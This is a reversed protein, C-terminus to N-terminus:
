GSNLGNPSSKRVLWSELSTATLDNYIVWIWIITIWEVGNLEINKKGMRWVTPGWSDLGHESGAAVRACTSSQPARNFRAIRLSLFHRNFLLPSINNLWWIVMYQSICKSMAISCYASFIDLYQSITGYWVFFRSSITNSAFSCLLLYQFFLVCYNPSCLRSIMEVLQLPKEFHTVINMLNRKFCSSVQLVSGTRTALVVVYPLSSTGEVWAYKLSLQDDHFLGQCCGIEWCIPFGSLDMEDLRNLDLGWQRQLTSSRQQADRPCRCPM